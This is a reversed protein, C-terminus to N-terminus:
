LDKYIPSKPFFSLDARKYPLILKEDLYSHENTYLRRFM